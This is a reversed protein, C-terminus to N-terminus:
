AEWIWGAGGDILGPRFGLRLLWAEARPRGPEAFAIIRRIGRARCRRLGDLTARHLAFKHARLADDMVLSAYVADGAFILGGIGVIANDILATVLQTRHPLPGDDPLNFRSAAFVLDERTTPRFTVTRARSM